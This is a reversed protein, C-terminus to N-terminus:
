TKFRSRTRAMGDRSNQEGKSGGNLSRPKKSVENVGAGNGGPGLFKKRYNGERDWDREKSQSGQYGKLAINHDGRGAFGEKKRRGAEGEWIRFTQRRPIAVWGGRTGGRGENQVGKGQKENIPVKKVFV